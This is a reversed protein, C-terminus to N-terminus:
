ENLRFPLLAASLVRDSAVLAVESAEQVGDPIMGEVEECRLKEVLVDARLIYSGTNLSATSTTKQADSSDDVV